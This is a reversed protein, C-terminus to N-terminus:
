WVLSYWVFWLYKVNHNFNPRTLHFFSFIFRKKQLFLTFSKFIGWASSFFRSWPLQPCYDSIFNSNSLDIDCNRTMLNTKSQWDDVSQRVNFIVKPSINEHLFCHQSNVYFPTLSAEPHGSSFYGSPLFYIFLIFYSYFSAWQVMIEAKASVIVSSSQSTNLDEPSPNITSLVSFSFLYGRHFDHQHCLPSHILWGEWVNRLWSMSGGWCPTSVPM